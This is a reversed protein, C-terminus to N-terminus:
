ESVDEKRKKNLKEYKPNTVSRDLFHGKIHEKMRNKASITTLLFHRLIYRRCRM